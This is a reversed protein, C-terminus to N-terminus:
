LNSDVKLFATIPANMASHVEVEICDYKFM